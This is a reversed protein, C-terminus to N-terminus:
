KELVQYKIIYLQKNQELEFIKNKYSDVESKSMQLEHQCRRRMRENFDSIQNAANNNQRGTAIFSRMKNADENEKKLHSKLLNMEQQKQKFRLQLTKLEMEKSIRKKVEAELSSTLSLVESRVQELTENLQESLKLESYITGPNTLSPHKHGLRRGVKASPANEFMPLVFHKVIKAAM